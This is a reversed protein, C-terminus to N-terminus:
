ELHLRDDLQLSWVFKYADIVLVLLILCQM